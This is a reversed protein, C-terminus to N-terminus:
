EGVVDRKSEDEVGNVVKHDGFIQAKFKNYLFSIVLLLIGLSVFVVIKSITNMYSMDYAFLKILTIGFLVFASVRLFQNKQYIGIAIMVFAYLGWLVSIGLKYTNQAGALDLYQILESTLIWLLIIHIASKSFFRYSTMNETQLQKWFAFLMFALSAFTLYRYLLFNNGSGTKLYIERADSFHLLGVSLFIFIVLIAGIFGALAFGSEKWRLRNLLFVLGIFVFLFVYITAQYSPSAELINYGDSDYHLTTFKIRSFEILMGIAFFLAGLISPMIIKRNSKSLLFQSAILGGCLVIVAAFGPNQFASHFQLSAGFLGHLSRATWGLLLAAASLYITLEGIGSIYNTDRSFRSYFVVIVAQLSLFISVYFLNFNIIFAINLFVLASMFLIRSALIEKALILYIYSAFFAITFASSFISLEGKVHSIQGNLLLMFPIVAQVIYIWHVYTRRHENKRLYLHHIVQFLIHFVLAFLLFLTFEIKPNYKALVWALFILWTAIFSSLFLSEWKRLMALILIGSNLILMYIFLMSVHGTGDSLLFPISYAGVLGFQAIFVRNYKLSALVTATMILFMFIFTPLKGYFGYFIFAAFTVFFTIASAGGLLVASFNQYKKFLRFALFGLIGAVSYGLLIRTFPSILDHEIAYGALFSIGIILVGIGIKSLLNEGIFSEWDSKSRKTNTNNKTENVQSTPNTQYTQASTVIKNEQVVVKEVPKPSITLRAEMLANLELRLENIETIYSRQRNMLDKLRADLALIKDENSNDTM